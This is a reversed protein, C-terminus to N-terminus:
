PLKDIFLTNGPIKKFNNLVIGTLPLVYYFKVSFPFLWGFRDNEALIKISTKETHNLNFNQM